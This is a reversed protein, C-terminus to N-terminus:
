KLVTMNANMRSICIPSRAKFIKLSSFLNLPSRVKEIYFLRFSTRSTYPFKEEKTLFVCNLFGKKFDFKMLDNQRLSLPQFYIFFCPGCLGCLSLERFNSLILGGEELFVPIHWLFMMFLKKIFNKTALSNLVGM